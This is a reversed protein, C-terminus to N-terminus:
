LRAQQKTHTHFKTASMAPPFSASSTQSFTNLLINPSLLSSTVPSNFLNCLSSIFSKYEEGLITRTIFDLLILHAPCTPRIPSSLHTYLTYLTYCAHVRACARVCLVAMFMTLLSILLLVVNLWYSFSPSCRTLLYHARQTACKPICWVSPRLKALPYPM